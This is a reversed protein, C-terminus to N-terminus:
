QICQTMEHITGDIHFRSTVCAHDEQICLTMVHITCDLHLPSIICAHYSNVFTSNAHCDQEPEGEQEDEGNPKNEGEKEVKGEECDRRTRIAAVPKPYQVCKVRVHLYLIDHHFKSAIRKRLSTTAPWQLRAAAGCARSRLISGAKLRLGQSNFRLVFGSTM